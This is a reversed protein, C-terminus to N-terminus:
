GLMFRAADFQLVISALMSGSRKPMPVAQLHRAPSAEVTEQVGALIGLGGSHAVYGYVDRNGHSFYAVCTRGVFSSHDIVDYPGGSSKPQNM